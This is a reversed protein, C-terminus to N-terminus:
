ETYWRKQPRQPSAGVGAGDVLCSEGGGDDVCEADESESKEVRSSCSYHNRAVDVGDGVDGRENGNEHGLAGEDVGDIAHLAGCLAVVKSGKDFCRRRLNADDDDGDSATSSDDEKDSQVFAGLVFGLASLTGRSLAGDVMGVVRM